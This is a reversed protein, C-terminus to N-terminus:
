QKQCLGMGEKIFNALYDIPMSGSIRKIPKNNDDAFVFTPITRINWESTLHCNEDGEIDVEIFTVNNFQPDEQLAEFVPAMAHCPQCWDAYFKYITM